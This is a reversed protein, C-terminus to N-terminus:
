GLKQFAKDLLDDRDLEVQMLGGPHGAVCCLEFLNQDAKSRVGAVRHRVRRLRVIRL